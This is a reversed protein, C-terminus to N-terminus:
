VMISNFFFVCRDYFVQKAWSAFTINFLVRSIEAMNRKRIQTARLLAMIELFSFAELPLLTDLSQHFDDLQYEGFCNSNSKQCKWFM